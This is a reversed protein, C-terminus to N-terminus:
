SFEGVFKRGNDLSHKIFDKLHKKSAFEMRWRYPHSEIPWFVSLGGYHRIKRVIEMVTGMELCWFLVYPLHPSEDGECCHTTYVNSFSNLWEIVPIIKKDVNASKLVITETKHPKYKKDKKSM